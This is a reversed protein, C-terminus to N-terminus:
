GVCRPLQHLVHHMPGPRACAPPLEPAMWTGLRSFRSCAQEQENLMQSVDRYKSNLLFLAIVLFDSYNGKQFAYISGSVFAGPVKEGPRLSFFCHPSLFLFM